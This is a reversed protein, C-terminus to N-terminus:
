QKALILEDTIFSHNKYIIVYNENENLTAWLQGRCSLTVTMWGGKPKFTAMFKVPQNAEAKILKKTCTAEERVFSEAQPYKAATVVSIAAFVILINTFNLHKIM